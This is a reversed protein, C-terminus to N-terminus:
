PFVDDNLFGCGAPYRGPIVNRHYAIMISHWIAHPSYQEGQLGATELAKGFRHLLISEEMRTGKETLFLAREQNGVALRPRVASLYDDLSTLTYPTFVPVARLSHGGVRNNRPPPLISTGEEDTIISEVNLALIDSLRLVCTYMLSYLAVDRRLALSEEGNAPAKRIASELKKFFKKIDNRLM